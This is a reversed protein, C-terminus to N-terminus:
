LKKCDSYFTGNSGVIRELCHKLDVPEGEVSFDYAETKLVLAYRGPTLELAPDASHLEYMEPDDKVPSVRFPFSVNRMVWTDEGSPKKGAVDPSFERYIKAIVRVDAHDSISSAADKRFVLFKPHGDTLLSRSPIKLDASIAVRIDPPQGPLPQLEILSDNNIAYVGYDTPRLPNPKQAPPVPPRDNTPRAPPQQEELAAQREFKPLHQILSALRERQQFAVFLGVLVAFMGLTRKIQPLLLHTSRSIGEGPENDIALRPRERVPHILEVPLNHSAPAAVDPDGIEPLPPPVV